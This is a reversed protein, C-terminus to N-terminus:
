GPVEGLNLLMPVLMVNKAFELDVVRSLLGLMEM